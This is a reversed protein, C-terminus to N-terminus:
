GHAVCIASAVLKKAGGTQNYGVVRWGDDPVYDADPGDVPLSSALHAEDIPGSLFGGGGIVHRDPACMAVAAEATQAVIEANTKRVVSVSGAKRCVAYTEMGGIGGVTDFVRAHWKGDAGPFSSNVYSDTTAIFAGGGILTTAAPCATSGVRSSTPSDPTDTRRYRTPSQTCVTYGTLTRDVVSRVTSDWWDDPRTDDPSEFAGDLDMPRMAAIRNRKPTGSVMSGGSVTHWASTHSGCAMWAAETPPTFHGSSGVLLTESVYKLGGAHGLDVEGGNPDIPGGAYAAGSMILVAPAVVSGITV